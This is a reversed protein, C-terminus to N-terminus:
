KIFLELNRARNQDLNYVVKTNSSRATKKKSVNAEVKFLSELKKKEAESITVNKAAGKWLSSDIKDNGSIAKWHIAKLSPGKKSGLFSKRSHLKPAPPPPPPPAGGFPPPPPPPGGGFQPPPPPMPPLPPGISVPTPPQVVVPPQPVPPRIPSPPSPFSKPSGPEISGGLRAPPLIQSLSEPRPSHDSKLIPGSVESGSTFAELTEPTSRQESSNEITLNDSRESGVISPTPSSLSVPEPQKEDNCYPSDNAKEEQEEDLIDELIVYHNENPEETILSIVNSDYAKQPLNEETEATHSSNAQETKAVENESMNEYDSRPQSKNEEDSPETNLNDYVSQPRSDSDGRSDESRKLPLDDNLVIGIPENPDPELTSYDSELVPESTKTIASSRNSINPSINQYPEPPPPFNPSVESKQSLNSETETILKEVPKLYNEYTEEPCYTVSELELYVNSTRNNEIESKTSDKKENGSSSIASIDLSLQHVSNNESAIFPSNEVSSEKASSAAGVSSACSGNPNIQLNETLLVVSGSKSSVNSPRREAMNQQLQKLFDEMRSLHYSSAKSDLKVAYIEEFLREFLGEPRLQQDRQRIVENLNLNQANTLKSVWNNFVMHNMNPERFVFTTFGDNIRIQCNIPNSTIVAKGTAIDISRKYNQKQSVLSRYYLKSGELHVEKKSWINLSKSKKELIGSFSEETGHKQNLFSKLRCIIEERNEANETELLLNEENQVEILICHDSSANIFTKREVNKVDSLWIESEVCGRGIIILSEQDLDIQLNQKKSQRRGTPSINYVSYSFVPRDIELSELRQLKILQEAEEKSKHQEHVIKMILAENIDINKSKRQITFYRNNISSLINDFSSSKLRNPARNNQFEDEELLLDASRYRSDNENRNRQESSRMPSDHRDSDHRTSATRRKHWQDSVSTKTSQIIKSIKKTLFSNQRKHNSGGSHQAGSSSSSGCDNNNAFVDNTTKSRESKFPFHFSSKQSLKHVNQPQQGNNASLNSYSSENDSLDEQKSALPSDDRRSAGNKLIGVPSGAAHDSPMAMPIPTYPTVLQRSIPKVPSSQDSNTTEDCLNNEFSRCRSLDLKQRQRHIQYPAVPM